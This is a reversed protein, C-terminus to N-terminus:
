TRKIAEGIVMFASFKVADQRLNQDAHFHRTVCTFSAVEEIRQSEIWFIASLLLRQEDSM